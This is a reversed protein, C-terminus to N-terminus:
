AKKERKWCYGREIVFITLDMVEVCGGRSFANKGDNGSGLGGLYNLGAM